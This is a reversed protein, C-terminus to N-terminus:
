KPTILKYLICDGFAAIPKTTYLTDIQAKLPPQACMVMSGLKPQITSNYYVYDVKYNRLKNYLESYFYVSPSYHIIYISLTKIKPHEKEVISLLKGYSYDMYYDSAFRSEKQLQLRLPEYLIGACVVLLLANAYPLKLYTVLFQKIYLYAAYIGMGSVIALMPVVPNIYWSNFTGNSAVIYFVFAVVMFYIAANRTNFKTSAVAFVFAPLVIFINSQYVLVKIYHFPGEVPNYAYTKASNFYRPFLENNWVAQVYGPTQLEHLYYYLGILGFSAITYLYVRPTKLIDLIKLQYLSVIFLGPLLMFIAISKTYMALTLYTFCYLLQKNKTTAHSYLYHYFHICIAIEFFILLADHDASRACHDLTYSYSTLMVLAAGIGPILSQTQQWLFRVIIGVTALAAMASPLRFVWISSGFLKICLVQLWLLLPPKTEWMDPQGEYMRVLYNGETAMTIAHTANRAEDWNRMIPTGLQWFLAFYCIVLLLTLGGWFQYTKGLLM